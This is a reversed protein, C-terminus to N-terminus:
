LFLKTVFSIISNVEISYSFLGSLSIKEKEKKEPEKKRREQENMIKELKKQYIEKCNFTKFETFHKSTIKKEDELQQDTLVLFNNWIKEKKKFWCAYFAIDDFKNDKSFM